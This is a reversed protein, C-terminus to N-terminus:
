ILINKNFKAVRQVRWRFFPNTKVTKLMINFEDPNLGNKYIIENAQLPFAKVVARVKPSLLPLLLPNTIDIDKPLKDIELSRQLKEIQKFRLKEIELLSISFERFKKNRRLINGIIPTTSKNPQISKKEETISVNPRDM